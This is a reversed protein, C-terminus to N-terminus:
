SHTGRTRDAQRGTQEEKGLGSERGCVARKVTVKADDVGVTHGLRCESRKLEQVLSTKHVRLVYRNKVTVTTTKIIAPEEETAYKM